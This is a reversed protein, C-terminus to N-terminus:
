AGEGLTKFWRGGQPNINPEVGRVKRYDEAYAAWEDSAKQVYVRGNVKSTAGHRPPSSAECKVDCTLNINKSPSPLHSPLHTHVQEANAPANADNPPPRLAHKEEAAVSRKGSIKRAKELEQEIRKHKWGPLFFASITEKVRRFEARTCCSIKRLKEDNEPLGGTQWYHMILLMYIGHELADLHATDARYEAVNLPMWHLKM